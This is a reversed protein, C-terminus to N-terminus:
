ECTTYDSEGYATELSFIATYTTLGPEAGVAADAALYFILCSPMAIVPCLCFGEDGHHQIHLILSGGEGVLFGGGWEWAKEALGFGSAGQGVSASCDGNFGGM